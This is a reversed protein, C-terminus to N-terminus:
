AICLEVERIPKLGSAAKGKPTDIRITRSSCKKANRIREWVEFPASKLLFDENGNQVAYTIQAKILDIVDNTAKIQTTNTAVLDMELCHAVFIKEEQNVIINLRIHPKVIDKIFGM